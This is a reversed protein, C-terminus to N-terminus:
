GNHKRAPNIECVKNWTKWGETIIANQVKIDRHIFYTYFTWSTDHLTAIYGYPAGSAMMEQQIQTYYYPPVGYHAAKFAISNNTQTIDEPIPKMLMTADDFIAKSINYHRQGAATVVKIEVPIYANAKGTIGDFNMRLYPFEECYYMDVPKYIPMNFYDGWKKIILPELDRGKRVATKNGIAKEEATLTDRAKEQVLDDVTKYPNVGLVVSADSGGLGERRKIAYEENELAAINAVAVKWGAYSMDLSAEQALSEKQSLLEEKYNLEDDPEPTTELIEANSETSYGSSTTKPM